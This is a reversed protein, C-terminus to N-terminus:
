QATYKEKLAQLNNKVPQPPQDKQKAKDKPSLNMMEFLKTFIKVQENRIQLHRNIQYYPEKGDKKTINSLLSTAKAIEANAREMIKMSIILENFLIEESPALTGLEDSLKTILEEM